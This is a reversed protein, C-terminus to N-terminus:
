NCTLLLPLMSNMDLIRVINADEYENLILDKKRVSNAKYCWVSVIGVRISSSMSGFQVWSM